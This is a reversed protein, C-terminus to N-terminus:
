SCDYAGVLVMLLRSWLVVTYFRKRQLVFPSFTWVAFMGFLTGFIAESVWFKDPGLQPTMRFGLDPLPQPQPQHMRHALQTFIGHVYQMVIGFLLIMWRQRLM